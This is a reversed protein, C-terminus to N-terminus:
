SPRTTIPEARGKVAPRSFINGLDRFLLVFGRCTDAFEEASLRLLARAFRPLPEILLTTAAVVASAGRSFHKDAYLLRSRLAYFLRTAKVRESSGGGKHFAEASALYHVRFGARHVRLSLDLDELYVFFREDFGGLSEFLPRRILYFAGIVHDVDRSQLHDFHTMQLPPFLRPAVSGLGLAAGVFTRWSPFHACGRQTEGSEEILRVGCVGVDRGTESEMFKLATGLTEAGFSADPNLFLLYPATAATAGLNCAAAFGLNRESRIIQPTGQEAGLDLSGDTSGNDVVIVKGVHPGGEAAVSRLCRRLWNGSNWNVIIIDAVPM